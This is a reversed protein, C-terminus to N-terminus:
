DRTQSAVPLQQARHNLNKEFIAWAHLAFDAAGDAGAVALQQPAGRM